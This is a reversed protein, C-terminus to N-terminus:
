NYSSFDFSQKQGGIQKSKNLCLRGRHGLTVESKRHLVSQGQVRLSGSDAYGLAPILHTVGHGPSRVTKNGMLSTAETVTEVIKKLFSAM